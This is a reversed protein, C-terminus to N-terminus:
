HPAFNRFTQLYVLLAPQCTNKRATALLYLTTCSTYRKKTTQPEEPYNGPNNNASSTPSIKKRQERVQIDLQCLM